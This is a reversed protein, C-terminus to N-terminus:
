DSRIDLLRPLEAFRHWGSEVFGGLCVVYKIAVIIIRRKRKKKIYRETTALNSRRTERSSCSPDGTGCHRCLDNLRVNIEDSRTSAYKLPARLM